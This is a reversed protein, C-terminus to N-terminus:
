RIETFVIIGFSIELSELICRNHTDLGIISKIDAFQVRSARPRTFM